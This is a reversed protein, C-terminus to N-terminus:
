VYRAGDQSVDKLSPQELFLRELIKVRYVLMILGSTVRLLLTFIKVLPHFTKYLLPFNFMVDVNNQTNQAHEVGDTAQSNRM